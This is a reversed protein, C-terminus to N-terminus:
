GPTDDYTRVEICGCRHTYETTDDCIRRSTPKFLKDLLDRIPCEIKM